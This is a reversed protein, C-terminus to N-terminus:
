LIGSAQSSVTVRWLQLDCCRRHTGCCYEADLGTGHIEALKERLGVYQRRPIAEMRMIGFVVIFGFATSLGDDNRASLM